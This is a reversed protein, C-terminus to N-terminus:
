SQLKNNVMALIHPAMTSLLRFCVDHDLKTM